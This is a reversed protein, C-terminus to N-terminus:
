PEFQDETGHNWVQTRVMGEFHEDWEWRRRPQLGRRIWMRRGKDMRERPVTWVNARAHRQSLVGNVLAHFAVWDDWELYSANPKHPARGTFPNVLCEGPHSGCYPKKHTLYIGQLLIAPLTYVKGLQKRDERTTPSGGYEIRNVRFRGDKTIRAQLARGLAQAKDYGGQLVQITYM